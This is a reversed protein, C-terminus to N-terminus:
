LMQYYNYLVIAHVFARFSGYSSRHHASVYVCPLHSLTPESDLRPKVARATRTTRFGNRKRNVSWQLTDLAVRVVDTMLSVSLLQLQM